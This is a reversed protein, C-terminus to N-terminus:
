LKRLVPAYRWHLWYFTSFDSSPGSCIVTPTTSGTDIGDPTARRRGPSTRPGVVDGESTVGWGWASGSRMDHRWWWVSSADHIKRDLYLTSNNNRILTKQDPTWRLENQHQVKVKALNFLRDHSPKNLLCTSLRLENTYLCTDSSIAIISWREFNTIWVNGTFGKLTSWAASDDM